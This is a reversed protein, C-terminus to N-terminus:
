RAGREMPRQQPEESGLEVVLEGPKVFQVIYIFVGGDQTSMDDCPIGSYRTIMVIRVFLYEDHVGLHERWLVDM